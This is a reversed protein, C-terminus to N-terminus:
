LTTDWSLPDFDGLILMSDGHIGFRMESKAAQECAEIVLERGGFACAMIVHTGMPNHLNTLLSSCYKFKFGPSIFIDTRKTEAVPPLALSELVRAGSTGISVIRKRQNSASKLQEISADPIVYEEANMRYDSLNTDPKSQQWSFCMALSFDLTTIGRERYGQYMEGTIRRAPESVHVANNIVTNEPNLKKVDLKNLDTYWPHMLKGRGALVEALEAPSQEITVLGRFGVYRDREIWYPGDFDQTKGLIEGSISGDALTFKGLTPPWSEALIVVDWLLSTTQPSDLMLFCVDIELGTHTTGNLRSPGMGVNNVALVDSDDFYSGVNSFTDEIITQKRADVVLLRVQEASRHEGKFSDPTASFNYQSFTDSM